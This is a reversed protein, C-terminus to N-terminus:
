KGTGNVGILGIKSGEPIQLSVDKFLVRPEKDKVHFEKTVKHLTFITPTSFWAVKLRPAVTCLIGRRLM